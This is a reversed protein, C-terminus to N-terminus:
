GFQVLLDTVNALHNRYKRTQIPSFSAESNGTAEDLSERAENVSGASGLYLMITTTEGRIWM